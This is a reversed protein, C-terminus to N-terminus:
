ALISDNFLPQYHTWIKQYRRDRKLTQHRLTHDDTNFGHKAFVAEVVHLATYFAVTVVWQPHDDIKERLYDLTRKNAAAAKKHAAM